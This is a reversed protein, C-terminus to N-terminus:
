KMTEQYIEIAIRAAEESGVLPELQEQYNGIADYRHNIADHNSVVAYATLGAKM